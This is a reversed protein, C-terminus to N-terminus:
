HKLILTLITGDESLDLKRSVEEEYKKKEDAIAQEYEAEKGRVRLQTHM